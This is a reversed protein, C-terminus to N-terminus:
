QKSPRRDQLSERVDMMCCPCSPKRMLWKAICAEHYTHSCPLVVVREDACFPSLCVSCEKQTCRTEISGFRRQPLRSIALPSLGIRVEGLKAQWELVDEYGMAELAPDAAAGSLASAGLSDVRIPCVPPPPFTASICPSFPPTVCAHFVHAPSVQQSVQPSVSRGTLHNTLARVRGGHNNRLAPSGLWSPDMSGGGARSNRRMAPVGQSQMLGSSATHGERPSHDQQRSGHRGVPSSPITQSHRQNLPNHRHPISRRDQGVGPKRASCIAQRKGYQHNLSSAFERVKGRGFAQGASFDPSSWPREMMSRALAEDNEREAVM